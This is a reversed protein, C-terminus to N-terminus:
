AATQRRTGLLEGAESLLLPLGNDDTVLVDVQPEDDGALEVDALGVIEERGDVPMTAALVVRRRPDYFAYHRMRFAMGLGDLFEEIRPLDTPRTLRLRVRSGDDLEHTAALLAGPDTPPVM